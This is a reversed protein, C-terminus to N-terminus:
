RLKRQIDVTGVRENPHNVDADSALMEELQTSESPSLYTTIKMAQAVLRPDSSELQIKIQAVESLTSKSGYTVFRQSLWRNLPDSFPREPQEVLQKQAKVLVGCENITGGPFCKWEALSFFCKCGFTAPDTFDNESIVAIEPQLYDRTVITRHHDLPMQRMSDGEWKPDSNMQVGCADFITPVIDTHSTLCNLTSQEIGPGAIICPTMNQFKSINAGHVRYNDELFSEGHDGVVCILRKPDLLPGILRDICRVSNLYRNWVQDRESLSYGLTLRGELAPSHVKDIADCQYDFHTSYLYLVALKPKRKLTESGSTETEIATRKDSDLFNQALQCMRSDSKTWNVDSTEFVDFNEPCVFGDMNFLGWDSAGGFFGTEYGCQRATRILAPEDNRRRESWISELGYLISFMAMNTSNATSFHNKAWIGRQTLNHINPSTKPSIAEHRMSEVIVLLIDPLEAPASKVSSTSYLAEREQLEPELAMLPLSTTLVERGVPRNPRNETEGFLGLSILPQRDSSRKMWAVTENWNLFPHFVGIALVGLTIVSSQLPSPCFRFRLFQVSVFDSLKWTAICLIITVACQMSANLVLELNINEALSPGLEFVVKASTASFLRDRYYTFALLDLMQIALTLLMLSRGVRVCIEPAFKALTYGAAFGPLTLM